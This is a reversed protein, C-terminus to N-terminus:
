KWSGLWIFEKYHDPEITEGNVEISETSSANNYVVFRYCLNSIPTPLVLGSLQAVDQTIDIAGYQDYDITLATPDLATLIGKDVKSGGAGIVLVCDRADYSTITINGSTDVVPTFGLYQYTNASVLERLELLYDPSAPQKHTTQPITVSYTGNGNNVWDAVAIEVEKLAKIVNLNINVQQSAFNFTSPYTTNSYLSLTTATNDAPIVYLVKAFTSGVNATVESTLLSYITDFKVEQLTNAEFEIENSLDVALPTPFVGQWLITSLRFQLKCNTDTMLWLSSSDTTNKNFNYSNELVKRCTFLQTEGTSAINQTFQPTALTPADDVFGGATYYYINTYTKPMYKDDSQTKTYVNSAKAYTTTIRDGNQDNVANTAIPVSTTGNLINTQNTTLDNLIPTISNYVGSTNKYYLDTIIGAQVNAKVPNIDSAGYTGQITGQNSNTAKKIVGVAYGHWGTTTYIYRYSEVDDGTELDVIVIDGNAPQRGLQTFVYNDLVSNINTLTSVTIEGVYNGDNEIYQQLVSIDNTNQEIQSGQETTTDLLGNIGGVVTQVPTRLTDDAKDQKLALNADIEADKEILDNIEANQRALEILIQEAQEPLVASAVYNGSNEIEFQVQETTKVRLGYVLQLPNNQKILYVVNQVIISSASNAEWYVESDQETLTLLNNTFTIVYTKAGINITRTDEFVPNEEITTTGDPLHIRASVYANGSVDLYGGPVEAEWMYGGDQNDVVNHMLLSNPAYNGYQVTGQPFPLLYTAFVVSDNPVGELKFQLTNTNASQKFISDGTAKTFRGDKKYYIKM